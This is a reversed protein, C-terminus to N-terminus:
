YLDESILEGKRERTQGAHFAILAAQNRKVFRGSTTLFGQMEKSKDRTPFLEALIIFCNCHRQGCIVIGTRINKPQHVREKGDDYWVAACLVRENDM